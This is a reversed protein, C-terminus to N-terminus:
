TVAEAQAPSHSHAAPMPQVASLAPPVHDLNIRTQPLAQPYHTQIFAILKERVDCRLDWAASADKASVLARLQMSHETADTVQLNWAAKDWLPHAELIRQLESRLAAVPVSYDTYIFVTGLLAASRRTWNQFPKELFYSLPVVMRRLDWIRVVVYTSTIEEVKGYENEIIVVDDIRIPQTLAIQVGGILNSLVPRAAIGAVLGALGASAFLTTGLHRIAPFTMLMAALAIILILGASIRQIVLVQTQLQRARLNDDVDVRYKAQLLDVGMSMLAIILWASLGILILGFGHRLPSAAHPPLGIEPLLLVLVAFAMIWATPRSAHRLLSQSLVSHSRQAMRRAVSFLMRHLLLALLVAGAM